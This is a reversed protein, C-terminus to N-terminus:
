HFGILTQRSVHWQLCNALDIGPQATLAHECATELTAGAALATLLAYEGTSLSEVETDLGRRIVLMRVGGASLDITEMAEVEARNVQWIRLVPYASELLRSAPHLAFRLLSRREPPIKALAAIDLAPANAAHFVEHYAWELRAVDRVYRMEALAPLDALVDPLAAGYDRVDGSRSPHREIYRRATFDFFEEGVLRNIVPYIARLAETLTAYVNHRYVQLRRAAGIGRARVMGEIPADSHDYIRGVVSSQIEHLSNM